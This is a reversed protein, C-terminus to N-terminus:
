LPQFVADALRRRRPDVMVSGAGMQNMTYGFGVQADPDAFGGSGGAGPHGFARPNPGIPANPQTLFYGLGRRSPWGLLVADLGNSQEAIAQDITAPSLIRVGDLEGGRALAGYARALARANGHGNGAPIEAARWERTNVRGPEAIDPPNVFAKFTLSEPDTLLEALLNPEGPQPPPAPIIEATRGDHEAALGIHFDLGLPAAIEERFFTGLSKGSIRRVVEGVLFGFTWAHYGHKTGPEWWPEQAALAATMTDWQCLSRMPLTKSVAPLGARHSLLYRVPLAEKGAQAFEPWYQAVPADVDLLGQDVLRHACLATMGKTTSYVNVITDREWPRTRAADAYGGWLDVVMKGDVMVAVPAGVEGGSALNEAFAEKVAEFRRDCTGEIAVTTTM